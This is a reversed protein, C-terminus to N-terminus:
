SPVAVAIVNDRYSYGYGRIYDLPGGCTVMVLRRPGTTGAFAWLPMQSKLVVVLRTVRWRTVHGSADSAYVVAGPQIRYLNYLTGNGQGYYDVHGALLTTGKRLPKGAPGSLQAGGNWMAVEHVNDPIVLAGGRQQYTPVVPGNICLSPIALRSRAISIRCREGPRGLVVGSVTVRAQRLPPLKGLMGPAIAFQAVPLPAAKPPQSRSGDVILVAGGALCAAVAVAFLPMHWWTAKRAPRRAPPEHWDFIDMM